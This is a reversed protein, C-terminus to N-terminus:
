QLIIIQHFSTCLIVAIYKQCSRPIKNTSGKFLPIDQIISSAKWGEDVRKRKKFEWVMLPINSDANSSSENYITILKTTTSSRPKHSLLKSLLKFRGLRDMFLVVTVMNMIKLSCFFRELAIWHEVNILVSQHDSVLGPWM